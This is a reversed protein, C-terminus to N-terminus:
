LIYVIGYLGKVQRFPEHIGAQRLTVSNMMAIQRYNKNGYRFAATNLANQKNNGKHAKLPLTFWQLYLFKLMKLQKM